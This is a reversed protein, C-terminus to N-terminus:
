VNGLRKEHDAVGDDSEVVEELGDLDNSVHVHLIVLVSGNFCEGGVVLGSGLNDLLNDVDQLAGINRERRLRRDLLTLLVDGVNSTLSVFGVDVTELLVDGLSVDDLGDGGLTEGTWGGQVREVDVAVEAGNVGGGVKEVDVAFVELKDSGRGLKQYLGLGTTDDSVRDSSGDTTALGGLLIVLQCLLKARGKLVTSFVDHQYVQSSVINVTDTVREGGGHVTKHSDLSEGVNHV